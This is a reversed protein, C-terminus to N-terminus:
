RNRHRTRGARARGDKPSPSEARSSRGTSRTRGTRSRGWDYSAARGAGGATMSFVELWDMGGGGHSRPAMPAPVRRGEVNMMRPEPQVGRGLREADARCVRVTRNGSSTQIDAMETADRHTPDFFCVPREQKEPMEPVPRNEAPGATIELGPQIQKKPARGEDTFPLRRRDEIM